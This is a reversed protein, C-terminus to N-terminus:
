SDSLIRLQLQIGFWVCIRATFGTDLILARPSESHTTCEEEM